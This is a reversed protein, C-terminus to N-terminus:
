RGDIYDEVKELAVKADLWLLRLQGDEISEADINHQVAHGLGDSEIIQVIEEITYTEEM